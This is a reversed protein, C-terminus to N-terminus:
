GIAFGRQQVTGARNADGVHLHRLELAAARQVEVEHEPKIRHALVAQHLRGRGAGPALQKDIRREGRRPV